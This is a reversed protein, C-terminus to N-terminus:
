CHPFLGQPTSSSLPGHIDRLTCPLPFMQISAESSISATRNLALHSPISLKLPSPRPPICSPLQWGVFETVMWDIRVRAVDDSSDESASHVVWNRTSSVPESTQILYGFHPTLSECESVKFNKAYVLNPALHSVYITSEDKVSLVAVARQYVSALLQM